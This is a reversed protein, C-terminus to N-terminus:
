YGAPSDKNQRNPRITVVVEQFQENLLGWTVKSISPEGRGGRSSTLPRLLHERTAQSDSAGAGKRESGLGRVTGRRPNSSYEGPRSAQSLLTWRQASLRICGEPSLPEVLVGGGKEVSM